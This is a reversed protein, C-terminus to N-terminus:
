YACVRHFTPPVYMRTEGVGRRFLGAVESYCFHTIDRTIKGLACNNRLRDRM